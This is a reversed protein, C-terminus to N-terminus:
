MLFMLVGGILGLIGPPTAFSQPLAGFHYCVTCAAGYLTVFWWASGLPARGRIRCLTRSWQRPNYEGGRAHRGAEEFFAKREHAYAKRAFSARAASGSFTGSCPASDDNQNSNHDGTIEPLVDHVFHGLGQASDFVWALVGISHASHLSDATGQRRLQRARARMDEVSEETRESSPNWLELRMHYNSSESTFADPPRPSGQSSPGFSNTSPVKCMRLPPASTPSPSQRPVSPVGNSSGTGSVHHM